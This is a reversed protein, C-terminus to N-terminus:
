GPRVVGEIILDWMISQVRAHDRAKLSPGSSGSSLAAGPVPLARSSAEAVRPDPALGHNIALSAISWRLSNLQDSGNQRLEEIVLSRLQEYGIDLGNESM